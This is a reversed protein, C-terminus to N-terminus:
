RMVPLVAVESRGTAAEIFDVAAPVAALVERTFRLAPEPVPPGGVAAILDLLHVTVDVVAVEAFARYTVRGVIPHALVETPRVADLEALGAPGDKDFRRLLEDIGLSEAARRAAEEIDEAATHAIGGPSNFIRLMEAGSTVTHGDPVPAARLARLVAPDPAVHAFLAHVSWGPLRTRAAWDAATFGSGRDAWSRWLEELLETNM